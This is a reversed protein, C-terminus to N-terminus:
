DHSFPAVQGIASAVARAHLLDLVIARGVAHDAAEAVVLALRHDARQQESEIVVIALEIVDAERRRDRALVFRLQGLLQLLQDSRRAEGAIRGTSWAPPRGCARRLPLREVRLKDDLDAVIMKGTVAEAM